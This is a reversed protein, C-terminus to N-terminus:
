KSSALAEEAKCLAEVRAQTNVKWAKPKRLVRRIGRGEGRRTLIVASLGRPCAPSCNGIMVFGLSTWCRGWVSMANVKPIVGDSLTTIPM